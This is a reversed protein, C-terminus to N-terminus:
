PGHLQALLVNDTFDSCTALRAPRHWCPRGALCSFTPNPDIGGVNDVGVESFISMVTRAPLLEAQQEALETVSVMDIM